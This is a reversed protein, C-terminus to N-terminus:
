ARPKGRTAAYQKGASQLNGPAQPEGPATAADIGAMKLMTEPFALDFNRTFNMAIASPMANSVERYRKELM